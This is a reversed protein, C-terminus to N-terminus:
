PDHVEHDSRRNGPDPAYRAVNRLNLLNILFHALIPFALNGTLEAGYGFALGMLGALATWSLLRARPPLHLLAFIGSTWWIGLSPQLAGRFLLEEGIASACALTAAESWTVHGLVSAFFRNLEQAWGQRELLRSAAVVGLGFAIGAVAGLGLQSLTTGGPLVLLNPHGVVLGWALAAVILLGYFVGALLLSRRRQNTPM